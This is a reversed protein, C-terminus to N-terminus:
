LNEFESKLADLKYKFYNLIINHLPDKDNFNYEANNLNASDLYSTATITNTYCSQLAGIMHETENIKAKLNNAQDLKANTMYEGKTPIDKKIFFNTLRGLLSNGREGCVGVWM